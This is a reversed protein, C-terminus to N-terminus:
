ERAALRAQDARCQAVTVYPGSGDRVSATCYDAPGIWGVAYGTLPLGAALVTAIIDIARRRLRVPLGRGTPQITMTTM